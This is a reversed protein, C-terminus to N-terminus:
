LNSRFGGRGKYSKEDDDDNKALLKTDFVKEEMAKVADSEFCCMEDGREGENSWFCLFAM